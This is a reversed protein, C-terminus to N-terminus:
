FLHQKQVISHMAPILASHLLVLFRNEPSYDVLDTAQIVTKYWSYYKFIETQKATFERTSKKLFCKGRRRTM